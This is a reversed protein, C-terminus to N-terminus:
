EGNALAIAVERAAIVGTQMAGEIFGAGLSAIDSGAFFIRGHRQRMLPAAGTLNGPRYWGWGGQSFEDTGWDHSATDVVEIEPVFKRLAEQVAEHDNAQIAAADSCICM